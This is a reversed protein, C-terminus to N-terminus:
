NNITKLINQYEEKSFCEKLAKTLKEKFTDNLDFLSFEESFFDKILIEEKHYNNIILIKTNDLDYALYTNTKQKLKVFKKTINEKYLYYLPYLYEKKLPKNETYINFLKKDKDITFIFLNDEILTIYKDQIKEAYQINKLKEKGVKLEKSTLINLNEKKTDIDFSYDYKMHNFYSNFLGLINNCLESMINPLHEFLTVVIDFLFSWEKPIIQNTLFCYDKQNLHINIEIYYSNLTKSLKNRFADEAFLEENNNLIELFYSVSTVNIFQYCSYEEVKTIEMVDIPIFLVKFKEINKNFVLAIYFNSKDYDKIILEILVHENKKNLHKRITLIKKDIMPVEHNM